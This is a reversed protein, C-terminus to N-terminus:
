MHMMPQAEPAQCSMACYHELLKVIRCWHTSVSTLPSFSLKHAMLVTSLTALHAQQKQNAATFSRTNGHWVASRQRWASALPCVNVCVWKYILRHACLCMCEPMNALVVCCSCHLCSRPSVCGDKYDRWALLSHHGNHKHTDIYTHRCCVNRETKINSKEQWSFQWKLVDTGLHIEDTLM